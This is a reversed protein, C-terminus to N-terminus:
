GREHIVATAGSDPQVQWLDGERSQLLVVDDRVLPESLFHAGSAEQEWLLAGTSPDLAYIHGLETAAIVADGLLVPGARFQGEAAEFAWARAGSQRDIAYVAGATSTVFVRDAALAPRGWLWGEGEFTWAIAGSASLDAAVLAGDLTGIYYIDGDLVGDGPAGGPLAVRWRRAGTELDYADLTGDLTAIVADGGHLVPSAWVRAGVEALAPAAQARETDIVVIRGHGTVVVLTGDNWAPAAVIETGLDVGDLWGAVPDGSRLDFAAVIGNHGAVYATRGDQALRGYVAELDHGRPGKFRWRELVTAGDFQLAVLEGPRDETVVIDAETATPPLWGDPPRQAACGAALLALGVLGGLLGIRRNRRHATTPRQHKVHFLEGNM